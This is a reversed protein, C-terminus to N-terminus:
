GEESRHGKNRRMARSIRDAIKDFFSLLNDQLKESELLRLTFEGAVERGSSRGGFVSRFAMGRFNERFHEVNHDLAREIEAARLRKRYIEKELREMSGIRKRKNM